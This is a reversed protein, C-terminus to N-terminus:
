RPLAGPPTRPADHVSASAGRPLVLVPHRAGEMLVESVSGLLARQLPGYGRSGTVLLDVIGDCAESITQGPPGYLLVTRPNVGEPATEAAADLTEQVHLRAKRVSDALEDAVAGAGELATYLTVAAGTAVAVAYGAQLALGAEPSGDYAIGLHHFPEAERLGAPAVAVACPAGQLLRGATRELWIRDTARRSSGIVILDAGHAEALETLARAPSSAAPVELHVRVGAPIGARADSLMQATGDPDSGPTDARPRHWPRTTVACALTVAGGDPDRFRLALALADQAHPSGDYAVIVNRFM